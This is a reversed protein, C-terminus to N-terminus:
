PVGPVSVRFRPPPWAGAPPKLTFRVELSGDLAVTGAVAVKAGPAVLADTVTVPTACPWVVIVALAGPIAVAAVEVIVTIEGGDILTGVLVNKLRPWDRGNTTVNDAGAGVPPMFTASILLWGDLTLTDVFIKIGAPSTVPCAITVPVPIPDALIVAEDAM